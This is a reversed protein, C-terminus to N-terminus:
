EEDDEINFIKKRNMPTSTKKSLIHLGIGAATVALAGKAIPGANRILSSNISASDTSLQGFLGLGQHDPYGPETCGSCPSGVGLCWSSTGNWKDIGCANKTVPGKCGLLYLCGKKEGFYRVYRGAEFDGRYECYDCVKKSYFMLPRRFEDLEPLDYLIMHNLSGLLYRLSTPVGPLKFYPTEVQYLLGAELDLFGDEMHQGYSAENGLLIVGKSIVILDKLLNHLADDANNTFYGELILIHSQGEDTLDSPLNNYDLQDVPLVKFYKDLFDIFDPHGWIGASNIESSQGKLWIISKVKPKSTAHLLGTLSHSMLPISITGLIMQRVFERRSLQQLKSEM